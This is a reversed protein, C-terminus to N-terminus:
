TPGPEYHRRPPPAERPRLSLLHTDPTCSGPGHRPRLHALDVSASPSPSTRSSGAGNEAGAQKVEGREYIPENQLSTEVGEPAAVTVTIGITPTALPLSPEDSTVTAVPTGDDGSPSLAVHPAAEVASANEVTVAPTDEECRDPPPESAEGGPAGADTGPGIPPPPPPPPDVPPASEEEGMALRAARLTRV